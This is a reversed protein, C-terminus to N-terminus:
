LIKWIKMRLFLWILIYKLFLSISFLIFLVKKLQSTVIPLLNIGRKGLTRLLVGVSLEVNILDSLQRNVPRILKVKTGIIDIVIEINGQTTISFRAVKENMNSNDNDNLSPLNNQRIPSISWKKYPFDNTREKVLAFIGVITVYFQATKNSETYQFDTIGDSKWSNTENDYWMLTVDDSMIVDDPVKM